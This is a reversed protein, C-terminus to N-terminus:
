NLVLERHRPTQLDILEQELEEGTDQDYRGARFTSIIEHIRSARLRFSRESEGDFRRTMVPPWGDM